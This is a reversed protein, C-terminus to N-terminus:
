ALETDAKDGIARQTPTKQGAPEAARGVQAVLAVKAVAVRPELAVPRM